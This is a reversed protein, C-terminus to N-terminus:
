RFSMILGVVLFITGQHSFREAFVVLCIVPLCTLPGCAIHFLDMVNLERYANSPISDPVRRLSKKEEETPFTLEDHIGDLEVSNHVIHSNSSRGRSKSGRDQVYISATAEDERPGPM